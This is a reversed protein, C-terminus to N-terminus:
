AATQTLTLARGSAPVAGDCSPEVAALRRAASFGEAAEARRRRKGARDRCHRCGITVNGIEGGCGICGDSRRMGKRANPSTTWGAYRKAALWSGFVAKVTSASPRNLGNRACKWENETPWKGTTLLHDLIAEAIMDATWVNPHQYIRRIELSAAALMRNWSGFVRQVTVQAPHHPTARKWEYARPSRGHQTAWDQAAKVIAAPPWVLREGAGCHHCIGPQVYDAVSVM